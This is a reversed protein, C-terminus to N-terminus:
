FAPSPLRVIVVWTTGNNSSSEWAGKSTSAIPTYHVIPNTQAQYIHIVGAPEAGLAGVAPNFLPRLEPADRLGVRAFVLGNREIRPM